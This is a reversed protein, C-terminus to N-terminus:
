RMRLNNNIESIARDLDIEPNKTTKERSINAEGLYAGMNKLIDKVNQIQDDNVKINVTYNLASVEEFSGMGSVMPSAAALPSNGMDIHGSSSNLVLNALSGSSFTGPNNAFVNRNSIYHDNIDVYAGKYGSKELERVTKNAQSISSFYARIEM